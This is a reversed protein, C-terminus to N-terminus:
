VHSVPVGVYLLQITYSHPTTFLQSIVIYLCALFDLLCFYICPAAIMVSPRHSTPLLPSLNIVSQVIHNFLGQIIILQGILVM